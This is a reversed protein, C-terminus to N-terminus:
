KIETQAYKVQSDPIMFMKSSGKERVYFKNDQYSILSFTNNSMGTVIRTGNIPTLNIDILNPGGPMLKQVNEEAILVPYYSIFILTLALIILGIGLEWKKVWGSFRTLWDSFRTSFSGIVILVVLVWSIFEIFTFIMNFEIFAFIMNFIKNFGSYELKIFVKNFLIAFGIFIMLVPILLEWRDRSYQYNRRSILAIIVAIVGLALIKIVDALYFGALLVLNYPIAQSFLPIKSFFVSCYKYAFIYIAATILGIVLAPEILKSLKGPSGRQSEM